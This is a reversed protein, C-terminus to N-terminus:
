GGVTINVGVSHLAFWGLFVTTTALAGWFTVYWFPIVYEGWSDFAAAITASLAVFLVWLAAAIWFTTIM